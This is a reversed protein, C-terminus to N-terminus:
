LEPRVKWFIRHYHSTSLRLVGPKRDQVSRFAQENRIRRHLLGHWPHPTSPFWVPVCKPAKVVSAKPPFNALSTPPVSLKSDWKSSMRAGHEHSPNSLPSFLCVHVIFTSTTWSSSLFAILQELTKATNCKARPQITVEKWTYSCYGLRIHCESVLLRYIIM